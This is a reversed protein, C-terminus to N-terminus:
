WQHAEEPPPSPTPTMDALDVEWRVPLDSCSCDRVQLKGDRTAVLLRGDSDWDAWQVGDLPLVAEDRVLSYRTERPWGSWTERFAAFQGAVKLWTTVDSKPRAKQMAVRDARREDWMDRPDRAPSDATETWGRRREVAFAEPMTVAMGLKERCPGVDGEDPAGVQWVTKDELFHLGRTWTGCTGWAALARLWPLRSIAIYTPGAKWRGPGKATFYCLWRGDPSLDCRQPYLNARIWAGPQYMTQATDWRGVHFWATPGRRLVAVIPARSAPICFIRPSMFPGSMRLLRCAGLGDGTMPTRHRRGHDADVEAHREALPREIAGVKGGLFGGGVGQAVDLAQGVVGLTVAGGDALEGRSAPCRGQVQM